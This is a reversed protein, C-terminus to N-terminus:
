AMVQRSTCCESRLGHLALALHWALGSCCPLYHRLHPNSRSWHAADGTLGQTERQKFIDEEGSPATAGPKCGAAKCEPGWCHQRKLKGPPAWFKICLIKHKFRGSLHGSFRKPTLTPLNPAKRGTHHGQIMCCQGSPRCPATRM